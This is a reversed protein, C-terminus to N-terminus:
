YLPIGLMSLIILRKQISFTLGIYTMPALLRDELIIGNLLELKMELDSDDQASLRGWWSVNLGSGNM